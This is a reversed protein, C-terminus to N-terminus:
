PNSPQSSVAAIAGIQAPQSASRALWVIRIVAAAPVSVLVGVLGGIQGGAMLAFIVTMPPLQLRDGMIRPSLVFNEIVKWVAIVLAMWMWPAQAFWGATLVIAAALVWGLVPIFELAGSLMGLALPYPFGLIAMAGTYVAGTMGALALQTRTYQALMTDIAEVTRKVGDRDHRQAFLDVAGDILAPRSTLFFIAIVPVMLLWGMDSAVSTVASIAREGTDELANVDGSFYEHDAVRSLADPAGDNLQQMQDVITPKLAYGTGLMVVLASAYVLAIAGTRSDAHLLRRQVWGVVPELLYALLLAVVFVGLTARAAFLFGAVAAFLAITTLVNGTREDLAFV